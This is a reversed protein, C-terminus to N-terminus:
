RAQKGERAEAYWSKVYLERDADHVDGIEDGTQAGKGKGSSTVTRRSVLSPGGDEAGGAARATGAGTLGVGAATRIWRRELRLRRSRRPSSGAGAEATIITTTTTTTTMMAETGGATTAEVM